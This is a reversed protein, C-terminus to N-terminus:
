ADVDEEQLFFLVKTKVHLHCWSWLACCVAHLLSQEELSGGPGGKIREWLM